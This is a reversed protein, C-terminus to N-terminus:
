AGNGHLPLREDFMRETAKQVELMVNQLQRFKARTIPADKDHKSQHVSSSEGAMNTLRFLPLPVNSIKLFNM